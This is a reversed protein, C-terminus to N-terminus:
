KSTSLITKRIWREAKRHKKIYARHAKRAEAKSVEPVLELSTVCCRPTLVDGAPAQAMAKSALFLIIIVLIKKM